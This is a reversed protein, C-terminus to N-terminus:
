RKPGLKLRSKKEKQKEKEEDAPSTTDSGTVYSLPNAMAVAHEMSTPMALKPLSPLWSSAEIEVAEEARSASADARRSRAAASKNLLPQGDPTQMQVWGFASDGRRKTACKRWQNSSDFEYLKAHDGYRLWQLKYASDKPEKRICIGEPASVVHDEGVDEEPAQESDLWGFTRLLADSARHAAVFNGQEEQAERVAEEELVRLDSNVRRAKRDTLEELFQRTRDDWACEIATRGLHDEADIKAFDPHEVILRLVQKNAGKEVAIHLVTDRYKPSQYNLVDAPLHEFELLFAAVEFNEFGLAMHLVTNQGVGCTTRMADATGSEYYRPTQCMAQVVTLNGRQCAVALATRGANDLESGATFPSEDLIVSVVDFLNLETAMHLVTRKKDVEQLDWLSSRVHSKVMRMKQTFSSQDDVGQIIGQMNQDVTFNTACMHLVTFGWDSVANVEEFDERNLVYSMVETFDRYAAAMLITQGNPDRYNIQETSAMSVASLAEDITENVCWYLAYEPETATPVKSVLPNLVVVLNQGM